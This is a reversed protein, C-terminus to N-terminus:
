HLARLLEDRGAARAIEVLREADEPRPRFRPEAHLCRSLVKLAKGPENRELLVALYDRAFFLGPGAVEWAMMQWFFWDREDLTASGGTAALYQEIYAQGGAANGRSFLGYAHNLVQVRAREVGAGVTAADPEVPEPIGVRERAGSSGIVYGIFSFAVVAAYGSALLLLIRPAGLARLGALALTLAVIVAPLLLYRWRCLRLLQYANRPDLSASVSGSIALVGIVAPLILVFAGAAFAAVTYDFRAYAQVVVWGAGLLCALPMLSWALGQRGLLESSLPPLPRGVLRADLIEMLYRACIPLLVVAALAAVLIGFALAVRLFVATLLTALEALAVLLLTSLCVGLDIIPLALERLWKRTTM